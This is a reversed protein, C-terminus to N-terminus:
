FGVSDWLDVFSDGCEFGERFITDSTSGSGDLWIRDCARKTGSSSQFQSYVIKVGDGTPVTWVSNANYATLSSWTEGDNSFRMQKNSGGGDYLYLDVTASSTLFQEREIVLPYVATRTSFNLTWYRTWPGATSTPPCQGNASQRVNNADGSQLQYGAGIERRSSVIANCHGESAMWGAVAASPSSYGAAINEAFSTWGTWGFDEARDASSTGTDPDCHMFFDRNAMNESHFESSLHLIRARKMPPLNGACACSANLCDSRRENILQYLQDEFSLPPAGGPSDALEELLDPFEETLPLTEEVEQAPAPTALVVLGVLLGHFLGRM